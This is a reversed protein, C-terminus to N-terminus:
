FGNDHRIVLVARIVIWSDRAMWHDNQDLDSAPRNRSGRDIDGSSQSDARSNPLLVTLISARANGGLIAINLRWKLAVPMM